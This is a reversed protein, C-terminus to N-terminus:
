PGDKTPRRAPDIETTLSEFEEIPALIPLSDDFAANTTCLLYFDLLPRISTHPDKQATAVLTKVTRRVDGSELQAMAIQFRLATVEVRVIELAQIVSGWQSFGSLRGDNWQHNFTLLPPTLFKAETADRELEDIQDQWLRIALSYDGRSIASFAVSDRWGPPGGKTAAVQEIPELIESSDRIRGVELCWLGLMAKAHMNRETYVADEELIQLAILTGGARWATLAVQLRDTGSDISQRAANEVREVSAELELLTKTQDPTMTSSQQKLIQRVSALALDMRGTHEYLAFLQLQIDMDDRRLMAAQKLAAAAEYYRFEGFWPTQTRAMLSSEIQDLIMQGRGLAGYGEPSNPDEHLGLLAHRIVQVALSARTSDPLKGSSSAMQQYHEATMVEAPITPRRLSFLNDYNSAPRAWERATPMATLGSKGNDHGLVESETAEITPNEFNLANPGFANVLVNLHHEAIYSKLDGPSENKRYFVATVATLDTMVWDTSNLLDGFTMYDPPPMPGTLRPMAHTIQYKDFLTKWFTTTGSGPLSERKKQLARRTKHYLEILDREGNGAFLSARTDLFSKQGSWIALDGQRVAFHFPRDDFSHRAIKEFAHMQIALRHAFGFGTRKGDPGDIRGSIVLWALAFFSIVTAARGGRSFLLERWDVAYIQGFRQRYWVQANVSCIACNVFSAAALEHTAACALGNFAMVVLVHGPHLRERNLFMVVLTSIFLVIAAVTGHSASNWFDPFSIPYFLIEVASPRPFLQRLAPYDIVYVRWPSLWSEWLFPHIATAAISAGAIRWWVRSQNTEPASGMISGRLSEGAAMFVLVTWGLFARNDFQSWVWIFPVLRWLRTTAFGDEVSFVMYSVGALGVLTILEPQMTFQPYCALLTLATCISGWWTRIGPRHCHALLGIATGALLGQVITLGVGGSLAYIGATCLDFLWSLNVWRQEVATYSFVDLAPPLLGNYAQYEGTKIHVLTRTEDIQSFGFLLALGVVAWRIVFDGRVAEDEIIEPTLPEWEPLGEDFPPDLEDPNDDGPQSSTTVTTSATRFPHQFRMTHYSDSRFITLWLSAYSYM